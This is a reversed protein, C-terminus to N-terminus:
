QKRVYVHGDVILEDINLQELDGTAYKVRFVFDSFSHTYTSKLLRLIYVCVCMELSDTPSNMWGDMMMMMMM